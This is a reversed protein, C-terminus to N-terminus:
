NGALQFLCVTGPQLFTIRRTAPNVPEGVALGQAQANLIADLVLYQLESGPRSVNRAKSFNYGDGGRFIYTPRLLRTTAIRTLKRGAM